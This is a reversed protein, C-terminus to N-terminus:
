FIGFLMQLLLIGGGIGIILFIIWWYEFPLIRKEPRYTDKIDVATRVGHDILMPIVTAPCDTLQADLLARLDIAYLGEEVRTEMVGKKPPNERVDNLLKLKDRVAHVNGNIKKDIEGSVDRKPRFGLDDGKDNPQKPKFSFDDDDM